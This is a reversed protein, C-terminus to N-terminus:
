RPIVIGAAERDWAHENSRARLEHKRVKATPTRPMDDVFEIYRPVAYRPLRDILFRALDAETLTSGPARIAFVKIEQEFDSFDVAVVACEHIEEHAVVEREVEMSSVNEGRRRIADKKRDVFYYYGDADQKLLDGTHFWGNRWGEATAVPNGQYESCLVWPYVHRVICEGPEGVPVDMDHADVIRVTVGPRPRGISLRELAEKDTGTAIVCGVETSGYSTTVRVGFREGFEGHRAPAPIIYVTVLSGTADTDRPPQQMLFAAMPAVMHAHTAGVRTADEVFTSASFRPAIYAQGGQIWSAVVEGIGFIHFLPLVVYTIENEGQSMVPVTKPDSANLLHAHSIVVGKSNGTTGSTYGLCAPDWPQVDAPELTPHSRLDAFSLLRRGHPLVGAPVEGRVVLRELRGEDFAALTALHPADVIATTAGSDRVVHSLINGRHMTNIPVSVAGAFSLAVFAVAWEASNDLMTLVRDGPRVGAERLGGAMRAAADYLERYTFSEEASRVAHRDPRRRANTRMLETLTWRAYQYEGLLLDESM